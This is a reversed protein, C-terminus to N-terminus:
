RGVTALFHTLAQQFKPPEDWFLWHMSQSFTERTHPLPTVATAAALFVGAAAMM